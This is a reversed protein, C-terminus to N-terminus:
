GKKKCFGFGTSSFIV